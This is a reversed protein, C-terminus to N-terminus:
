RHGATRVVINAERGSAGTKKIPWGGAMRRGDVQGDLVGLSEGVFEYCVDGRSSKRIRLDDTCCLMAMSEEFDGKGAARLVGDLAEGLVLRGEACCADDLLAGAM